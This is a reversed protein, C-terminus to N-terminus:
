AADEKKRMKLLNDRRAMVFQLCARMSRDTGSQLRMCATILREELILTDIMSLTEGHIEFGRQMEEIQKELLYAEARLFAAAKHAGAREASVAAARMKEPSLMTTAGM